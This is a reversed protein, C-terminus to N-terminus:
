WEIIPADFNIIDSHLYSVTLVGARIEGDSRSQGALTGPAGLFDYSLVSGDSLMATGVLPVNFELTTSSPAATPACTEGSRLPWSSADYVTLCEEWGADGGRMGPVLYAVYASGVIKGLSASVEYSPNKGPSPLGQCTPAGFPERTTVFVSATAGSTHVRLETIDLEPVDCDDGGFGITSPDTSLFTMVDNSADAYHASMAAALPPVAITVALTLVILHTRLPSGGTPLLRECSMVNVRLTYAAGHQGGPPHCGPRGGLLKNEVRASAPEGPARPRM